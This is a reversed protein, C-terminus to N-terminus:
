LLPKAIWDASSTLADYHNQPISRPAYRCAVIFLERNDHWDVRLVEGEFVEGSSISLELRQGPKPVQSVTITKTFRISSSDIPSGDPGAAPIKPKPVRLNIEVDM